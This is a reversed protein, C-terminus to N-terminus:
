KIVLMKRTMRAGGAELRLLYSGSALAQNDLRVSGTKGTINQSHVRRGTIDYVYLKGSIANGLHWSVRTSPNAPNPFLQLVMQQHGSYPPGSVLSTPNTEIVFHYVSLPPLDYTFFNNSIDNVTPAQRIGSDARDFYWAQAAQYHLEGGITFELAASQDYDKNCAIVHLQSPNNNDFSGYVSVTERLDSEVAFATNGFSGSQGDYNRFLQFASRVYGDFEGWKAAWYVGQRGLVGLMDVQAIGGSIHNAAGYDYETVALKTGPFHQDISAKLGPLLAVPSFWQGIWSDEVYSSDWLSRTLQMRTEAVARSTDGSYVGAPEPYWHIDLVDLLRRNDLDSAAKMHALYADIFRDYTSSYNSWDPASQLNLFASFGYLAPGFVEAAIDMDKITKALDVSRSFLDACRVASPKIRPHTSLWLAPENDLAYGRIGTASTADGYQSVLFNLLEDTYVFGDTTDPSIQFVGGKRNVIERWRHSPATETIDVTGLKDRAVYGAMQLTLLSYQNNQISQDHFDTLVIGPQDEQAAPIGSIWTLYNDSSHFWDAGANSANHEWNYGSLRNGGSRRAPGNQYIPGNTGYIYPSIAHQGSDPNLQLQVTLQTFAPITSFLMLLLLIRM